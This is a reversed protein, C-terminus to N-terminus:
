YNPLRVVLTGPGAKDGNAPIQWTKEVVMESTARALPDM